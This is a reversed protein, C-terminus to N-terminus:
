ASLERAIKEVGARDFNNAIRIFRETVVAAGPIPLKLAGYNALVDLYRQMNAASVIGIRPNAPDAAPLLEQWLDLERTKLEVDAPTFPEGYAEYVLRAAGAANYRILVAAKVIARSFGGLAEGKAEMTAPSAAYGGNVVEKLVPHRFIRMKVGRATLPIYDYSPFGVAAVRGALVHSWAEDEYGTPVFAYDNKKLGAAAMMSDIAVPGAGGPGLLHVGISKGKLDALKEVPSDEPVCLVYTFSRERALFLQLRVGRDYGNLIPEIGMPCLDGAGSSCADVAEAAGGVRVVNVAIGEAAFFGAGQAVLYLTDMLSLKPKGLVISLPVPTM